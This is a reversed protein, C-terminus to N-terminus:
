QLEEKLKNELTKLLENAAFLRVFDRSKPEINLEKVTVSASDALAIYVLGAPHGESSSPGAVGTVSLGFNAAALKKVNQAMEYATNESVAGYQELTKQSVSLIQAKTRCSYTCVGLEFVQSAGSVATLLESVLGGTCSEATAVTLNKEKLLSVVREARVLAENEM